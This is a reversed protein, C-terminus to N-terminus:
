VVPPTKTGMGPYRVGYENDILTRAEKITKGQMLYNQTKINEGVCTDCFSAHEDYTGDPNVFCDRLSVHGSHGGCGCYCPIKELMEPHLTAYKYGSLTTPNTYAYSPLKMDGMNGMSESPSNVSLYGIVFLSLIIGLIIVTITKM